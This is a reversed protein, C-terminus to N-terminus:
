SIVIIDKKNILNGQEGQEQDERSRFLFQFFNATRRVSIKPIRALYDNKTSFKNNVVCAFVM